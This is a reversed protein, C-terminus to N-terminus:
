VDGDFRGNVPGIKISITGKFHDVAVQELRECGPLVKSLVDPDLLMPFVVERPRDFRHSGEIRM